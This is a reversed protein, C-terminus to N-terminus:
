ITNILQPFARGVDKNDQGSIEEEIKVDIIYVAYAITLVSDRGICASDSSSVRKDGERPSPHLLM